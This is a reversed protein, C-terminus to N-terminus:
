FTLGGARARMRWRKVPRSVKYAVAISCSTQLGAAKARDALLAGVAKRRGLTAAPDQAARVLGAVCM